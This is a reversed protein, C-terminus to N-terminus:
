EIVAKFPNGSEKESLFSQFVRHKWPTSLIPFLFLFLNKLNTSCNDHCIKARGERERGLDGSFCWSFFCFSRGWGYGCVRLIREMKERRKERKGLREPSTKGIWYFSSIRQFGTNELSQFSNPFSSPLLTQQPPHSQSIHNPPLIPFIPSPPPPLLLIRPIPTGWPGRNARKNQKKYCQWSLNYDALLIFKNQWSMTYKKICGRRGKM